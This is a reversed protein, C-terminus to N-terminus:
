QLPPLKKLHQTEWMNLLEAQHEMMWEKVLAQARRPLDGETMDLTRLDFIGIHEGYLAHIHSPEHEKPKFFMKIIIGYFRSIEPM